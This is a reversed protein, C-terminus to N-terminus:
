SYLPYSLIEFKIGLFLQQKEFIHFSHHKLPTLETKWEEENTTQFIYERPSELIQDPTVVGYGFVETSDYAIFYITESPKEITIM